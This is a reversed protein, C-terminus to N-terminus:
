NDRLLAQPPRNAITSAPEAYARPGIRPGLPIILYTCAGLEEM